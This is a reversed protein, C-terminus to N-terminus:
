GGLNQREVIAAVQQKAKAKAEDMCRMTATSQLRTGTRISQYECAEQIAGAIRRELTKQGKPTSLDLDAYSVTVDKASVAAGSLTLGFAAAILAVRSM